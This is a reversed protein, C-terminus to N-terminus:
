SSRLILYSANEATLLPYKMMERFIEQRYRIRKAEYADAQPGVGCYLKKAKRLNGRAMKIKTLLERVAAEACKEDNVMDEPDYGHSRARSPMLQWVGMAGRSSVAKASLGHSGTEALAIEAIDMPMLPSDLTKAYCLMGLRRARQPTTRKAFASIIAPLQRRREELNASKEVARRFEKDLNPNALVVSSQAQRIQPQDCSVTYLAIAAFLFILKKMLSPNETKETKQRVLSETTRQPIIGINEPSFRRETTKRAPPPQNNKNNGSLFEQGPYEYERSEAIIPL